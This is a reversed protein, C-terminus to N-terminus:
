VLKKPTFDKHITKMKKINFKKYKLPLVSNIMDEYIPYDTPSMIGHAIELLERKRLYISQLYTDLKKDPWSKSEKWVVELENRLMNLNTLLNSRISLYGYDDIPFEKDGSESM